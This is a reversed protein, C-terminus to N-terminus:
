WFCPRTSVCKFDFVDTYIKPLTIKEKHRFLSGQFSRADLIPSLKPLANSDKRTDLRKCHGMFIQHFPRKESRVWLRMLEGLPVAEPSYILTFYPFDAFYIRLKPLLIPELTCSISHNQFSILYLLNLLKQPCSWLNTFPLSNFLSISNPNLFLSLKPKM